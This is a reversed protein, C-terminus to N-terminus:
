VWRLTTVARHGKTAPSPATSSPMFSYIWSLQLEHILAAALLLLISSIGQVLPFPPHAGMGGAGGFQRLQHSAPSGWAHRCTFLVSMGGSANCRWRSLSKVAAGQCSSSIISVLFWSFKVFFLISSMGRCHTGDAGTGRRPTHVHVYAHRM